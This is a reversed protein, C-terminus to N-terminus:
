KTRAERADASRELHGVLTGNTRDRRDGLREDHTRDVVHALQRLRLTVDLDNRVCRWVSARKRDDRWTLDGDPLERDDFHSCVSRDVVARDTIKTDRDHVQRGPRGSLHEAPGTGLGDDIRKGGVCQRRVPDVKGDTDDIAEAM